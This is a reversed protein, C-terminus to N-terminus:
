ERPILPDWIRKEFDASLFSERVKPDKSCVGKFPCGGYKDCATDNMPYNQTQSFQENLQIFSLTDALWEATQAPTRQTFARQFRTFGVALQAADIIVGSVKENTVIEGAFTYLSMQNDPNFHSFYNDSLTTGTTKRDLIWLKDQLRVLRDLHGCLMYNEGSPTTTDLTFRFSLEVAPRGNALIVTECPDNKFQELYWIISRVLTFKTRRNDGAPISVGLCYRLAQRTAEQVDAGEARAEDYLELAKHYAIGFTLPIAEAKSKWGEIMTYYYKRPCTKLLTLSTSDWAWQLTGHFASNSM